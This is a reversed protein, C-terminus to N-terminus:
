GGGCIPLFSLVDGPGLATKYIKRQLISEGNVVILMTKAAKVAAPGHKKQIYHLADQVDQAEITEEGTGTIDALRSRYRITIQNKM